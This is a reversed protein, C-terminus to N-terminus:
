EASQAKIQDLLMAPNRSCVAQSVARVVRAFRHWSSWALVANKQNRNAEKTPERTRSKTLPPLEIDMPLGPRPRLPTGDM